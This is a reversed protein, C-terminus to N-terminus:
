NDKLIGAQILRERIYEKDTFSEEELVLFYRLKPDNEIMEKKIRDREQQDLYAKKTKTYCNPFVYHQHGFFEVILKKKPFYGDFRFPYGTKPNKFKVSKWEQTFPTKLIKSIIELCVTQSINRTFTELGHRICERKIIRFNHKLDVIAKGISIKGNKLSYKELQKKSIYIRFPSEYGERKKALDAVIENTEKTLGFNWKGANESMKIKTEESHKRGILLSKDRVKSNLSVILADPYDKRYNPHSNQIHSCLNEAKYGCERCTVYDDPESYQSWYIEEEQKKHIREIEKCESCKQNHFSCLFKSVEHDGECSPCKIIKTEGKGFGAERNKAADQRKETLKSCRILADPFKVKYEEATARHVAKLHRGLTTAKYDCMLCKVYDVGEEKGEFKKNMMYQKYDPHTKSQHRFHTALGRQNSVKFNCIPCKIM